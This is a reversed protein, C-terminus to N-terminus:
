YFGERRKFHSKLFGFWWATRKFVYELPLLFISIRNVLRYAEVSQRLGAILAVPPATRWTSILGPHRHVILHMGYGYWFYRRWLQKWSNREDHHFRAQSVTLQWGAKRIKAAIDIDEGTGAFSKDFGGSQKLAAVRCISGGIGLLRSPEEYKKSEYCIASINELATVLNGDRIMVRKGNTKGVKPHLDMYSVHERIFNQTVVIDGDVWIIYEGSANNLVLNRATGVGNWRTDFVKTKIDFSSICGQITSLTRDTSGDNVIIIEMLGHPFDSSAVSTLAAKVTGECNRVCVGITAKISM